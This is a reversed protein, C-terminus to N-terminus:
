TSLPLFKGSQFSRGVIAYQDSGAKTAMGIM